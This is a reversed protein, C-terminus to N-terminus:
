RGFRNGAFCGSYDLQLSLFDMEADLPGRGHDRAIELTPRHSSYFGTELTDIKCDRNDCLWWMPTSKACVSRPCAIPFNKPTSRPSVVARSTPLIAVLIM